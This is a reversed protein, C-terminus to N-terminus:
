RSLNFIDLSESQGAENKPEKPGTPKKKVSNINIKKENTFLLPKKKGNLFDLFKEMVYQVHYCFPEEDNLSIASDKPLSIQRYRFLMIVAHIVEHTLAAIQENTNKWKFPLAICPVCSGDIQLSYVCAAARNNFTFCPGNDDNNNLFRLIYNIDECEVLWINVKFVDFYVYTSYFDPRTVKYSKM